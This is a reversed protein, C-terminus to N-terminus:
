QPFHSFEFPYNVFFTLFFNVYKKKRTDNGLLYEPLPNLTLLHNRTTIYAYSAQRKIKDKEWSEILNKGDRRKGKIGTADVIEQPYFSRRGGGM